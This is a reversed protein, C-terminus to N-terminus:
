NDKANSAGVPRLRKALIWEDKLLGLMVGDRDIGFHNRKCGEVKAGLRKAINIVEPKETTISIRLCGLEGFVYLAVRNLFIRTFAKPEGAVTVEIDIKTYRTFLVGGITRGDQIVGLSSYSQGPTVGTQECVYDAIRQDSVFEKM